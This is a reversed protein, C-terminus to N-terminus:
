KSELEHYNFNNIFGDIDDPKSLKKNPFSQEVDKAALELQDKSMASYVAEMKITVVDKMESTKVFRYVMNEGIADMSDFRLKSLDFNQFEELTMTAEYADYIGYQYVTLHGDTELIKEPAFSSWLLEKTKMINKDNVTIYAHPNSSLHEVVFDMELPFDVAIFLDKMKEIADIFPVKIRFIQM